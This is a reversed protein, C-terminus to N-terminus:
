AGAPDDHGECCLRLAIERLRRPGTIGFVRRNKNNMMTDGYRSCDSNKKRNTVLCNDQRRRQDRPSPPVFSAFMRPEPEIEPLNEGEFKNERALKNKCALCFSTAALLKDNKLGNKMGWILYLAFYDSPITTCFYHTGNPNIGM